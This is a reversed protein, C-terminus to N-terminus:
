PQPGVHKLIEKAEETIKCNEKLENGKGTVAGIRRPYKRRYEKLLWLTKSIEPEVGSYCGNTARAMKIISLDISSELLEIANTSRGERIQTLLIKDDLAHAMTQSLVLCREKDLLAAESEVGKSPGQRCGFAFAAALAM